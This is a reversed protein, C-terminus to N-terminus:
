KATLRGVLYGGGIGLATGVFTFLKVRKKLKKVNKKETELQTELIDISNDKVRSISDKISVSNKYEEKVEDCTDLASRLQAVEVSHLSDSTQCDELAVKTVNIKNMQSPTIAVLTDGKYLIV